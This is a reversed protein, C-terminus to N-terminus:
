LEGKYVQNNLLSSYYITLILVEVEARRQITELSRLADKRVGPRGLCASFCNICEVLVGDNVPLRRVGKLERPEMRGGGGGVGGRHNGEAVGGRLVGRESVEWFGANEENELAEEEAAARTLISLVSSLRGDREDVGGRGQRDGGGVLRTGFDDSPSPVFGSSPPPCRFVLGCIRACSDVLACVAVEPMDTLHRSVFSVCRQVLLPLTRHCIKVIREPSSFATLRVLAPDELSRLANRERDSREKEKEGPKAGCIHYGSSLRDPDITDLFPIGRHEASRAVRLLVEAQLEATEPDALYEDLRSLLNHLLPLVFCGLLSAGEDSSLFLGADDRVPDAGAASLEEEFGFAVSVLGSAWICFPDTKGGQTGYAFRLAKEVFGSSISGDPAFCLSHGGVRRDRVLKRLDEPSLMM